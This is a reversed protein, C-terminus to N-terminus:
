STRPGLPTMHHTLSFQQLNAPSRLWPKPAKSTTPKLLAQESALSTEMRDTPNPKITQLYVSLHIALILKNPINSCM